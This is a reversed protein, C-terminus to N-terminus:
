INPLFFAQFEKSFCNDLIIESFLDFEGLVCNPYVRSCMWCFYTDSDCSRSCFAFHCFVNYLTLNNFISSVKRKIHLQFMLDYNKFELDIVRKFDTLDRDIKESWLAQKCMSDTLESIKKFNVHSNIIEQFHKSVFKLEFLDFLSLHKLM